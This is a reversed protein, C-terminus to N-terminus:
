LPPLSAPGAAPLICFEPTHGQGLSAPTQKSPPLTGEHLLFVQRRPPVEIDCSQRLALRGEDTGEPESCPGWPSARLAPVLRGRSDM